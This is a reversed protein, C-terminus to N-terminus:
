GKQERTEDNQFIGVRRIDDFLQCGGLATIIILSGGTLFVVQVIELYTKM